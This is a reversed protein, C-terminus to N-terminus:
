EDAGANIQKSYEEGSGRHPCGSCSADSLSKDYRCELSGFDPITVRHLVSEQGRGALHRNFHFGNNVVLPERRRPKSHCGYRRGEPKITSAHTEHNLVAM